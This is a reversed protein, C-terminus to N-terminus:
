QPNFWLQNTGVAFGVKQATASTTLTGATSSQYYYTGPTLGGIVQCMGFLAIPITDGIAGSETAWGMAPQSSVIAKRARLGGSNHFNITQGKIIAETLKAMVVCNKQVQSQGVFNIESYDSQTLPTNGTYNDLAYGVNKIANYVTVLAAYLEPSEAEPVAPLGLNTSMGAKNAM